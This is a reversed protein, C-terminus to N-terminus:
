CQKDRKSSAQIGSNGLTQSSNSPSELHMLSPAPRGAALAEALARQASPLTADGPREIYVASWQADLEGALRRAEALIAAVPRSAEAGRTYPVVCFTCFKDCGRQITVFGSVGDGGEAGSLGEYTEAKDLRVDMAFSPAPADAVEPAARRAQIQAILEPVRRYSDPGAIVDVVPAREAIGDKLHEAMCGAIGLIMSPRRKKLAGLEAARAFVREEAKERVACTNLVVM